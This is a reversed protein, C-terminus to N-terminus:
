MLTSCYFLVCFKCNSERSLFCGLILSNQEGKTPFLCIFVLFSGIIKHTREDKVLSKVELEEEKELIVNLKSITSERITEFKDELSKSDESILQIFEKKSSEDLTEIYNTLTQNAIRVMSKLPINISEKVVEKTSTLVNVINKKSNVRELLNLKNTYVLADIDSYKNEISESITRPLKVNTLLKQILSIGEELFDKSDTENLGQPTSLQDYLSYLKSMTKDNLINHKFEKLSKKFEVENKYSEILRNEIISKIKGFTM